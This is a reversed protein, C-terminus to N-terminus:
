ASIIGSGGQNGQGPVVIQSAQERRMEEIRVAMEEVAQQAGASFGACAEELTDGPLEFNLPMPGGATMVQTAGMYIISRSDDPAGNADVPVMCRITGTKSDTYNDERYLNGSDFEPSGADTQDNM